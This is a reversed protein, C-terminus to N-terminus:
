VAICQISKRHLRNDGTTVTHTMDNPIHEHTGLFWSNSPPRYGGVPLPMNPSIYKPMDLRSTDATLM